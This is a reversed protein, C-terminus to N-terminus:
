KLDRIVKTTMLKFIKVFNKDRAEPVLAIANVVEGTKLNVLQESKSPIVKTM